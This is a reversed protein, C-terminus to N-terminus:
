KSTLERNTSLRDAIKHYVNFSPVSSARKHLDHLTSKSIGHKRAEVTTLSLIQKRVAESDDRALVPRPEDYDSANEKKLIYNALEQAKM